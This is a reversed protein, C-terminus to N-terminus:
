KEDAQALWRYIGLYSYQLHRYTLPLQAFYLFAHSIYTSGMLLFRPVETICQNKVGLFVSTMRLSTYTEPTMSRQEACRLTIIYGPIKIM